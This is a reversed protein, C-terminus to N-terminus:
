KLWEALHDWTRAESLAPRLTKMELADATLVNFIGYQACLQVLRRVDEDVTGTIIVFRTRPAVSRLQPLVDELTVSGGPLFRSVLAVDPPDARLQEPLDDLLTATGTVRYEHALWSVLQDNVHFGVAVVLTPLAAREKLIIYPAEDAM